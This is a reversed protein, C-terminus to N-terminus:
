CLCTKRLTLIIYLCVVLLFLTHLTLKLQNQKANPRFHEFIEVLKLNLTIQKRETSLKVLTLYLFTWRWSTQFVISRQQKQLKYKLLPTCVQSIYKLFTQSQMHSKFTWVYNIVEYKAILNLICSYYHSFSDNKQLVLELCDIDLNVSAHTHRLQHTCM